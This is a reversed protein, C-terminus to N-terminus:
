RFALDNVSLVARMVSMILGAVLLGLVLTLLPTLLAMLRELREQVATEYMRAIHMMVEDLRNAEEGVAALHCATRPMAGTEEFALALRTGSAVKESASRIAMGIAHNKCIRQTVSLAQLLPIGSSLLLGLAAATRATVAGEVIPGIIPLRLLLRDKGRQVREETKLRQAAAFLSAAFSAAGLGLLRINDHLSVLIRIILPPATVSNEFLPLLNPVLVGAIVMITLLSVALLIAPYTLASKLRAKLEMQRRMADAIQLLIETVSGTHEAARVMAAEHDHLLEPHLALAEGLTKGESVSNAIRGVIDKAKRLEPQEPLLRLARDLPLSARLLIALQYVFALRATPKVQKAAFELRWASRRNPLPSRVAFTVLGQSRLQQLADARSGADIEGGVITGERTYAEYAFRSM